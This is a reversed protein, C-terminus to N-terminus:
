KELDFPITSSGKVEATLKTASNYKAPIYMEAAPIPEPEGNQGKVFKGPIIRTAIVEVQMTGAESRLQYSGNKIEGSYARGDSGTNRFQIRGQEIPKGDYSVTGSVNYLTPGGDGGCGLALTSLVLASAFAFRRALRNLNFSM